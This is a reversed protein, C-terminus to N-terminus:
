WIMEIGAVKGKFFTDGWWEGEEGFGGKAQKKPKVTVEPVEPVDAAEPPPLVVVTRLDIYSRPHCTHFHINNKTEYKKKSLNSIIKQFKPSDLNYYM